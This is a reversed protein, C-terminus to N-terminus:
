DGCPKRSPTVEVTQSSIGAVFGTGFEVNTVADNLVAEEDSLDDTDPWDDLASMVVLKRSNIRITKEPGFASNLASRNGMELRYNGNPYTLINETHNVVIEREPECGFENVVQARYRMEITVIPDESNGRVTGGENVITYEVEPVPLVSPITVTASSYSGDEAEARITYEENPHLVKDTFYNWVYARGGFRFLSDRLVYSEGSSERTLTVETRNPDPDTPILSEGIPMVRVESYEGQLDIAGYMSFQYQDNEMLPEFTNDCGNFILMVYLFFLEVKWPILNSGKM